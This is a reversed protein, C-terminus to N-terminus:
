LVDFCPVPLTIEIKERVLMGAPHEFFSDCNDAFRPAKQLFASKDFDLRWNQLRDSSTCCGFWECRM